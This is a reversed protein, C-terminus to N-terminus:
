NEGLIRFDGTTLQLTTDFSILEPEPDMMLLGELLLRISRMGTSSFELQVIKVNALRPEFTKIASQLMNILKSRDKPSALSFTSFDPLGYQLVSTDTEPLSPGPQDPNRRSNLLWELDRRLGTKFIRVSEARTMPAEVSPSKPHQDTLRDLISLTVASNPQSRLLKAM